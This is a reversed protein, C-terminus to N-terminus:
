NVAKVIEGKQIFYRASPDDSRTKKLESVLNQRSIREEPTRNPSIYITKFGEIDKLRRAKRLIQYVIDLSKVNFIIPRKTDNARQGIRRCRTIHPKEELQELIGAVKTSACEDAEEDVGFVVVEKTRDEEKVIKKIATAINTPSLATLCSQQLASSYSKLEKEVTQSVLGLEEDKKSILKKQLEIVEKQDCIKEEQLDEIAKRASSMLPLCCQDLLHIATYLWEAMQAKVVTNKNLVEPTFKQPVDFGYVKCMDSFMSNCVKHVERLSLEGFHNDTGIGTENVEELYKCARYQVAMTCLTTWKYLLRLVTM